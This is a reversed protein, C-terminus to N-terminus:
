QLPFRLSSLSSNKILISKEIADGSNKIIMMENYKKVAAAAEEDEKSSKIWHLNANAYLACLAWQWDRMQFRFM